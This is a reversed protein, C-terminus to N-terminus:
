TGDDMVASPYSLNVLDNGRGIPEEKYEVCGRPYSFSHFFSMVMDWDQHVYRKGKAVRRVFSVRLM